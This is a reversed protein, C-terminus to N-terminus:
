EAHSGRGVCMKKTDQTRTNPKNLMLIAGIRPLYLARVSSNCPLWKVLPSVLDQGLFHCLSVLFDDFGLELLQYSVTHRSDVVFQRLGCRTSCGYGVAMEPFTVRLTGLSSTMGIVAMTVPFAASSSFATYPENKDCHTRPQFILINLKKHRFFSKRWSKGNNEAIKVDIHEPLLSFQFAHLMSKRCRSYAPIKTNLLLADGKPRLSLVFHFCTFLFCIAPFSILRKHVSFDGRINRLSASTLPKKIGSPFSILGFYRSWLLPSTSFLFSHKM